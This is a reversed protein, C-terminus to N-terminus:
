GFVVSVHGGVPGRTKITPELPKAKAGAAPSAAVTMNPAVYSGRSTTTSNATETAFSFVSSQTAIVKKASRPVVDSTPANSFISSTQDSHYVSKKKASKVENNTPQLDASVITSSMNNAPAVNEVGRKAPKSKTCESVPENFVSSQFSQNKHVVEVPKPSFINFPDEPKQKLSAPVPKLPTHCDGLEVSVKGGVPARSSSSVAPQNSDPALALLNGMKNDEYDPAMKKCPKATSNEISMMDVEANEFITAVGSKNVEVPPELEAAKGFEIHDANYDKEGVTQKKPKITVTPINREGFAVNTAALHAVESKAQGKKVPIKENESAGFEINSVGAGPIQGKTVKPIEAPPNNDGLKITSSQRTIDESVKAKKPTSTSVIENKHELSFNTEAANCKIMKKPPTYTASELRKKYEMLLDSM